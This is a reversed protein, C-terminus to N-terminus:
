TCGSCSPGGLLVMGIFVVWTELMHERRKRIAMKLSFTADATGRGPYFGCQSEQDPTLRFKLIIAVIKYAVELMMIGRHNGPDSLDRKKLLIALLGIEWASDISETEWLHLVMRKVLAFSARDHMCLVKWAAAPVGSAGPSTERLRSAARRIEDDTPTTEADTAIPHQPADDVAGWNIVPERGYLQSFHREFVQVNEEPSKAKEGRHNRM